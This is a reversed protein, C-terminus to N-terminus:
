EMFLASHFEHNQLIKSFYASFTPEFSNEIWATETMLGKGAETLINVREMLALLLYIQLGIFKGGM